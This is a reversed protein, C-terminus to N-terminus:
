NDFFITKQFQSIQDVLSVEKRYTCKMSFLECFNLNASVGQSIYCYSLWQYEFCVCRYPWIHEDYFVSNTCQEVFDQIVTRFKSAVTIINKWRLEISNNQAIYMKVYSSEYAKHVQIWHIEWQLLQSIYIKPQYKMTHYM